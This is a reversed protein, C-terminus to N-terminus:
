VLSTLVPERRFENPTRGTRRKFFHCFHSPEEFGLEYTIEKISRKTNSLLRKAELVIREQIVQLPTKKSYLAFINSLTKPAKNLMGAYEAVNHSKCFHQEVLMNFKRFIDLRHDHLKEDPIYNARALQTVTIILRKLLTILLEKQIHDPTALELKFIELLISLRRQNEQNLSIFLNEGMGFLFGACSVESDHDIMCYFERNFQWAIIDLPREFSFAQNFMLPLLTNAPLNYVQDDIVATQSPGNNWAITFHRNEMERSGFKRNLEPEHTVLVLNGGTEQDSLTLKM